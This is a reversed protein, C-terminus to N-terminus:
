PWEIRFITFPNEVTLVIRCGHKEVINKTYYLGIGFGKVDHVNGRPVRYFKEFVKNIQNKALNGGDDRVIITKVPGTNLFLDIHRGGYKCANDMLNSLANEFHFPDVAAWVSADPNFTISKEPYLTRFKEVLGSIMVTLDAQQRQLLLRESDIAATELLKEIMLNLRSLQTESIDLYKEAKDPNNTPNFLRIGQLAASVTAIPTKFEHTINNILDNKMESLMKQSQIVRHLYLLVAGMMLVLILSLVAKRIGKKFILLSDNSFQLELHQDPGLYTSKSMALLPMAMNESETYTHLTTQNEILRLVYHVNLHNRQLEGSLLHSLQQFNLTDRTISILIKQALNELGSRAQQGITDRSASNITIITLRRTSDPESRNMEPKQFVQGMPLPPLSGTLFISNDAEEPRLNSQVQTKTAEAFYVEVSNDLSQQVELIFQQEYHVYDEYVVYAQILVTVIILAIIIIGIQKFQRENM